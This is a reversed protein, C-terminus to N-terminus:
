RAKVLCVGGENVEVRYRFSKSTVVAGFACYAESMNRGLPGSIYYVRIMVRLSFISSFHRDLLTCGENRRGTTAEM